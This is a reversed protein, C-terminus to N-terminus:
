AHRASGTELMREALVIASGRRSQRQNATLRGLGNQVGGCQRRREFAGCIGRVASALTWWSVDRRVPANAGNNSMEDRDFRM